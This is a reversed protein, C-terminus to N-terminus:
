FGSIRTKRDGAFFARGFPAIRMLMIYPSNIHHVFSNPPSNSQLQQLITNYEPFFALNAKGQSYVLDLLGSSKYNQGVTVRLAEEIDEQTFEAATFSHRVSNEIKMTFMFGFFRQQPQAISYSSGVINCFANIAEESVNCQVPESNKKIREEIMDPKTISAEFNVTGPKVINTM